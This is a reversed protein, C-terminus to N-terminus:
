SAPLGFCCTILVDLVLVARPRPSSSASVGPHPQTFLMALRLKKVFKDDVGAMGECGQGKAESQIMVILADVVQHQTVAEEGVAIGVDGSISLGAIGEPLTMTSPM